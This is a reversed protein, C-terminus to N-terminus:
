VVLLLRFWHYLAPHIQIETMDKRYSTIFSSNPGSFELPSSIMETEPVSQLTV